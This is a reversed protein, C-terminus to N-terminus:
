GKTARNFDTPKLSCFNIWQNVKKWVFTSGSLLIVTSFHRQPKGMHVSSAVVELM